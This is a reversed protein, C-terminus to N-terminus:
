MELDTIFPELQGSTKQILDTTKKSTKIETPMIFM